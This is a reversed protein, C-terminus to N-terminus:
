KTTWSEHLYKKGHCSEEGLVLDHSLISPLWIEIICARCMRAVKVFLYLSSHDFSSAPKIGKMAKQGERRDYRFRSTNTTRETM